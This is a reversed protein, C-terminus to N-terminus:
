RALARVAEEVSGAARGEALNDLLADAAAADHHRAADSVVVAVPVRIGLLGGHTV